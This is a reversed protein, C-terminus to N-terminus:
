EDQGQYVEDFLIDASQVNIQQWVDFYGEDFRARSEQTWKINCQLIVGMSQELSAINVHAQPSCHSSYIINLDFSIM